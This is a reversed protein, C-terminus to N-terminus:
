PKWGPTGYDVRPQLDEPIDLVKVALALELSKLCTVLWREPSKNEDLLRKNAKFPVRTLTGGVLPRAIGISFTVEYCEEMQENSWVYATADRVHVAPTHHKAMESVAVACEKSIDGCAEALDRLLQGDLGYEEVYDSAVLASDKEYDDIMGEMNWDDEYHRRVMHFAARRFPNHESM